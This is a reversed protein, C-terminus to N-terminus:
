CYIKWEEEYSDYGFTYGFPELVKRLERKCSVVIAHRDTHNMRNILEYAHDM